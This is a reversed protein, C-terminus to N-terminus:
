PLRRIAVIGAGSDGDARAAVATLPEVTVCHVFGTAHILTDTDVLLGVHGPFYVIDGRRREAGAVVTGTTEQQRYTDRDVAHGAAAAALQVLGSCDVGLSSRGGWLYPVGLFREATAVLDPFREDVPGLAAEAIWGGPAGGEEVRCYGGQRGVVSVTARFSLAKLPPTKLTPEPYLFARLARVRHTPPAIRQSLGDARVYGVYFDAEAQGWAWGNEVEYVVLCEGYLLETTQPAAFDPVARMPVIGRIAQHRTGEVYRKAAVAGRLHAAALDPRWATLNRDIKTV